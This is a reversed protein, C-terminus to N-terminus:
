PSANPHLFLSISVLDKERLADYPSDMYPFAPGITTGPFGYTGKKPPSTLINKPQPTRPAPKDGKKVVDYETMHKYPQGICGYYGGLGTSFCHSFILFVFGKRLHVLHDFHIKTLWKKNKSKTINEKM